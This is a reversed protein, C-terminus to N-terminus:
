KKAVAAIKSMVNDLGSVYVKGDDDRCYYFDDDYVASGAANTVTMTVAPKDAGCGTKTARHVAKLAQDIPAYEAESLTRSGTAFSQPGDFGGDATECVKWTLDRSPLTIEYRIDVMQCTSGDPASFTFGGTETLVIKTTDGPVVTAGDTADLNTNVDSSADGPGASTSTSGGCALALLPGFSLLGVALIVRFPSAMVPLM